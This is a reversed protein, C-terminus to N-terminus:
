FNTAYSCPVQRNWLEEQSAWNWLMNASPVLKALVVEGILNVISRLKLLHQFQFQKRRFNDNRNGSINWCRTEYIVHKLFPVTIIKDAIKRRLTVDHLRDRAYYLFHFLSYWNRKKIVHNSVMGSEFENDLLNLVLILCWSQAIM